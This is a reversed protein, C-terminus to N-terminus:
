PWEVMLDYVAAKATKKSLVVLERDGLDIFLNNFTIEAFNNAFLVDRGCILFMENATYLQKIFHHKAPHQLNIM